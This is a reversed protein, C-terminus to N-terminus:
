RRHFRRQRLLEVPDELRRHFHRGRPFRSRHLRLAHRQQYEHWDIIKLNEYVGGSLLQGWRVENLGFILDADKNENAAQVAQADGSIVSNDDIKITFGAQKAQEILWTTRESSNSNSYIRIVYDEASATITCLSLMMALALALAVFKKM